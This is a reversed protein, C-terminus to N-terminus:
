GKCDLAGNKYWIKQQSVDAEVYRYPDVAANIFPLLRPDDWTAVKLGLPFDGERVGPAAYGGEYGTLFVVVKTGVAIGEFGDLRLGSLAKPFRTHTANDHRFVREVVLTGQSLGKRHRPSATPGREEDHIRIEAVTGGVIGLWPECLIPRPETWWLQNVTWFGDVNNPDDDLNADFVEQKARAMSAEVDTQSQAESCGAAIWLLTLCSWRTM